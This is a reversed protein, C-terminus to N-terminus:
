LLKYEEFSVVELIETERVKKEKSPDLYTKVYLRKGSLAEPLWDADTIIMEQLPLNNIYFYQPDIMEESEQFLGYWKYMAFFFIRHISIVQDSLVTHSDVVAILELFGEESIVGSEEWLERLFSFMATEGLEILGGYGNRKGRYGRTKRALWVVNDKIPFGATFNKTVIEGM